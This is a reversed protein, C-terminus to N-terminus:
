KKKKAARKKSPNRFGAAIGLSAWERLSDADDYVDDPAKRYNMVDVRGDGMTFSFRPCGAADWTADSEADSKFWVTDDAVLAFITGDCYLVAGGMMKRLTVTGVPEMAEAIWDVLGQDFAM